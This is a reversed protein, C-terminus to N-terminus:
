LEVRVTVTEGPDLRVRVSRGAVPLQAGDAKGDSRAREARKIAVSGPLTVQTEGGAGGADWVRFCVAAPGDPWAATVQAGPASSRFAAAVPALGVHAAGFREAGARAAAVDAAAFSTLASHFEFPGGDHADLFSRGYATFGLAVHYFAGGFPGYLPHKRLPGPLVVGSERCSFAVAVGDGRALVWKRFMADAPLGEIWGFQWTLDNIGPFDDDLMRAAPILDGNGFPAAPGFRFPSYPGDFLLPEARPLLLPYAFTHDIAQQRGAEIRQTFYVAKVGALLYIEQEVSKVPGLRVGLLREAVARVLSGPLRVGVVKKIFRLLGELQDPHHVPVGTVRAAVRAPEPASLSVAM